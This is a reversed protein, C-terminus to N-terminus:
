APSWRASSSSSRASSRRGGAPPPDGPHALSGGASSGALRFRVVLTSRRDGAAGIGALLATAVMMIPTFLGHWFPRALLVGFVAGLTSPALVATCSSAMCAYRHVQPHGTFM